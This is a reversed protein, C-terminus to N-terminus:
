DNEGVMEDSDSSESAEDNAAIPLIEFNNVVWEAVAELDALHHDIQRLLNLNVEDGIVVDSNPEFQSRIVDSLAHIDEIKGAVTSYFDINNFEALEGGAPMARHRFNPYQM